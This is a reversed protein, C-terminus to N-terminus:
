TSGCCTPFLVEQKNEKIKLIRKINNRSEERYNIYTKTSASRITLDKSLLLREYIKEEFYESGIDENLYFSHLGKLQTFLKKIIRESIPKLSFIFNDHLILNYKIFPYDLEMIDEEKEVKLKRIIADTIKYEEIEIVEEYWNLIPSRITDYNSKKVDDFFNSNKKVVLIYLNDKYPGGLYSFLSYQEQLFLNLMVKISVGAFSICDDFLKIQTIKRETWWDSLNPNIKMRIM